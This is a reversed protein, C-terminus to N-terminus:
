ICQVSICWAVCPVWTEGKPAGIGLDQCALVFDEKTLHMSRATGDTMDGIEGSYSAIVEDLSNVLYEKGRNSNTM